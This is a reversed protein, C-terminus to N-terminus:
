SEFSGAAALPLLESFNCIRVLQGACAAAQLLVRGFYTYNQRAM